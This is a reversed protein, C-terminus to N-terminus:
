HARAHSGPQSGCCDVGDKVYSVSVALKGLQEGVSM